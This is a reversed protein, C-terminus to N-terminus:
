FPHPKWNELLGLNNSPIQKENMKSLDIYIFCIFYEDKDLFALKRFKGERRDIGVRSKM